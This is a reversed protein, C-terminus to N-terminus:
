ISCSTLVVQLVRLWSYSISQCAMFGGVDPKVGSSISRSRLLWLTEPLDGPYFWMRSIPPSPQGPAARFFSAPRHCTCFSTPTHSHLPRMAGGYDVANVDMVHGMSLASGDDQQVAPRLEPVAPALLNRDQAFAKLDNDGIHPAKPIRVFGQRPVVRACSGRIDVCQGAQEAVLPHRQHGMVDAGPYGVMKSQVM